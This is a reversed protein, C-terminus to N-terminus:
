NEESVAEAEEAKAEETETAEASESKEETAEEAKEPEDQTTAEETVVDQAAECCEAKKSDDAVSQAFSVTGFAMVMAVAVFLKKM